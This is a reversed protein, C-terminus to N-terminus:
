RHHKDDIRSLDIGENFVGITVIAFTFVTTGRELHGGFANTANALTIHAHVRGDIIYGNMATIDAPGTPDQVFMNRTPFERNSVVHYHYGTVSGIGALVVGNRIKEQKVLRELGELLDTRHKLRAIVVREFQGNRAYVEPVRPDNPAFDAPVPANTREWRAIQALGFGGLGLLVLSCILTRM